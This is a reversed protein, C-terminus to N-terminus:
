TVTHRYTNFYLQVLIGLLLNRHTLIAQFLDAGLYSLTPEQTYTYSSISSCWSGQSYTVTHIYLKFYLQWLIGSLLNRHTHIDQFLAAGLYRLTPEQTYNIALLLAAGTSEQTYKYNLISSCWSVWFYAGRHTYLKFYLQVLIGLPLNRIYLRFYLEVLIGMLLSRHTHIVQFLAAGPIHSNM